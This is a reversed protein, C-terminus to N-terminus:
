LDDREMNKVHRCLYWHAKRLDLLGTGKHRYRGIYKIVQGLHYPLDWAEIVDIPEINSHTYHSPHNVLDPERDTM